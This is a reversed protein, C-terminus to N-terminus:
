MTMVTSRQGGRVLARRRDAALELAPQRAVALLGDRAEDLQEPLLAERDEEDDQERNGRQRQRGAACGVDELDDRDQERGLQDGAAVV